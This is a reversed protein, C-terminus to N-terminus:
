YTYGTRLFTRIVLQRVSLCPSLGFKILNRDLTEQTTTIAEFNFGHSGCGDLDLDQPYFSTM